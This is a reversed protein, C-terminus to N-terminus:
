PYLMEAIPLYRLLLCEAQHVIFGDYDACVNSRPYGLSM